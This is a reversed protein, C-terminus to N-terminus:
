AAETDIEKTHIRYTTRDPGSWRWCPEGGPALVEHIYVTAGETEEIHDGRAPVVASGGLVLDAAEVFYDRTREVILVGNQDQQRFATMGITVRLSLRNAGRVYVIGKSGHAKRQAGLWEVASKIQDTEEEGSTVALSFLESPLSYYGGSLSVAVFCYTADAVAPTVTVDGDGSRSGGLTPTEGSAGYYVYHTAGADGDITVTVTGDANDVLGTISPAGPASGGAPTHGLSRLLTGVISM